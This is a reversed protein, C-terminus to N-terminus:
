KFILASSADITSFWKSLESIVWVALGIRAVDLIISLSILGTLVLRLLEILEDMLEETYIEMAKKKQNRIIREYQKMLNEVEVASMEKAAPTVALLESCFLIQREIDANVLRDMCPKIDKFSFPGVILKLLYENDQSIQTDSPITRKSDYICKAVDIKTGYIFQRYPDEKNKAYESELEAINKELVESNLVINDAILQYIEVEDREYQASEPLNLYFPFNTPDDDGMDSIKKQVM